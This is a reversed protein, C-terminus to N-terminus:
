LCMFLLLFFSASMVDVLFFVKLVPPLVYNQHIILAYINLPFVM